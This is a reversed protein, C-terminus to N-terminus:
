ATEKRLLGGQPFIAKWGEKEYVDVWEQVGEMALRVRIKDKWALGVDVLGTQNGNWSMMRGSDGFAEWVPGQGHIFSTYADSMRDATAAVEPDTRGPPQYFLIGNGFSHWAYGKLPGPTNGALDTGPFPDPIDISYLYIKHNPKKAARTAFELNPASFLAHTGVDIISQLPTTDPSRLASLAITAPRPDKLLGQMHSLAEEETLDSPYSSNIFTAAEDKLHGVIIEPCWPPLDAWYNPSSTDQTDWDVFWNPDEIPFCVPPVQRLAILAKANLARLAQLKVQYPADADIGIAEALNNFTAQAEPLSRFAPYPSSCIIAKSFLPIGHKLLYFVSAAGASEGAVTVRSADGGFHGISQQIWQLALKQDNLGQNLVPTQNADIAEAILEESSLFGLINLRYNIAVVIIPKGLEVSRKVLHNGDCGTGNNGANFAGGHIWVLVPLKTANQSLASPPAYINLNLCDKEDTPHSLDLQEFMHSMMSQVPDPPQPCGPGYHRADLRGEMGSPDLMTATQFRAPMTAYPINLLNVVGHSSVFGDLTLGGITTSFNTAHNNVPM